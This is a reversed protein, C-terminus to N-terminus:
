RADESTKNSTFRGSFGGMDRKFFRGINRLNENLNAPPAHGDVMPSPSSAGVPTAAMGAGPTPTGLRDVGDRAATMLASGLTAPDFRNPLASASIASMPTSTHMGSGVSSYQLNLPALLPSSDLLHELSARHAHMLQLLQAQEPKRIGKLELVKKFNADSRDGIHVLYAQVLGEAPSPRVQLTKLLPDLKTMSQHIRKRHSATLGSSPDAVPTLLDEFEKKLSYLDLLMQLPPVTLSPSLPPLPERVQEAATESIPKCQVLNLLFTNVVAEVLNDGFARAYQQKSFLHLIEDSRAKIHRLLSAVYPSQDVVNELKSWPHNRMERWSTECDLEVLRVLGRVAASAVGMFADQQSQLDIKTRLDEDVRNKIKEDLQGCTTHCYEATNLTLIIDEMASSANGASIRLYNLLIQEAYEDLHEAFARSLEVLSSGSSLKACQALTTRYFHFLEVSSPVVSQPNFEEDTT